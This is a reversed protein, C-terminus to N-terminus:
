GPKKLATILEKWSKCEGSYNSELRRLNRIKNQGAREVKQFDCIAHFNFDIPIFDAFICFPISACLDKPHRMSLTLFCNLRAAFWQSPPHLARYRCRYTQGTPRITLAQIFPMNQM